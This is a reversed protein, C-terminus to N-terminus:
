VVANNILSKGTMESPKPLNMIKLVTPAIDALSGDHLTFNEGTVILPVPNTTHSTHREGTIPDRTIEANGHDASIVVVGGLNEVAGVIRSLAKDVAQIASVVANHNGTHGVMDANAYNIFVFDKKENLCKLAKDTIEKARMEPAQDHTKIDKRSPVLIHEENKYPNERGGNLFYTAHAYKETEAIHAQTLGARSVEAALTTKPILTPFLIQVSFNKDYETMTAFLINKGQIHEIIKQTLMRARDARFNYFLIADNEKVRVCEGNQNKFVLPELLEDYSGEQYLEKLIQSSTGSFTRGKSEFILDQAKSVRDWNKDRDMAYYRGCVSAIFGVGLEKIKNELQLLYEAASQPPTDRGDAFVHIAINSVGVMKAAELTAYLHTDHAHVGGPGLLGLCHLVSHNLKVHKFLLKLNKNQSFEGSTVAKNIRVLDTDIVRGAGITMHGVESNGMQGSPLGVSEASANLIAHPYKDWLKNFFIPNADAISNNEKSANYGWGDLIILVVPKYAM